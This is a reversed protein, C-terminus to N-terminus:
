PKTKGKKKREKPLKFYKTRYAWFGYAVALAVQHPKKKRPIFHFKLNQFPKRVKKAKAFRLVFHQSKKRVKKGIKKQIIRYIYIQQVRRHRMVVGLTYKGKPITTAGFKVNSKAELTGLKATYKQMQKEILPLYQRIMQRIQQPSFPLGAKQAFGEAWKDLHYPVKKYTIQLHRYQIKVEPLKQWEAQIRKEIEKQNPIPLNQGWLTSSGWLAVTLPLFWFVRSVSFM